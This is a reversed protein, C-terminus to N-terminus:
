TEVRTVTRIRLLLLFEVSCHFLFALPFFYLWCFCICL